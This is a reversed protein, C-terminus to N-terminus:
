AYDTPYRGRYAEPKHVESTLFMGILEFYIRNTDPHQQYTLGKLDLYHRLIIYVITASRQIYKNYM